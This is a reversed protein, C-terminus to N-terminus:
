CMPAFTAARDPGFLWWVPEVVEVGLGRVRALTADLDAAVAERLTVLQLGVTATSQGQGSLAAGRTALAAATITLFDRRNIRDDRIM